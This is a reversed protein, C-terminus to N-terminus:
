ASICSSLKSMITLHNWRGPMINGCVNFGIEVNNRGVLKNEKKQVICISKEHNLKQEAETKYQATKQTNLARYECYLRRANFGFPLGASVDDSKSRNVM